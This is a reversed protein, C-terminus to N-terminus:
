TYFDNIFFQKYIVDSIINCTWCRMQQYYLLVSKHETRADTYIETQCMLELIKQLYSYSFYVLTNCLTLLWLLNPQQKFITHTQNVNESTSFLTESFVSYECLKMGLKNGKPSHARSHHFSCTFTKNLNTPNWSTQILIFFCLVPFGCGKSM